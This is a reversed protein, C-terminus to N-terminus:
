GFGDDSVEIGDLGLQTSKSNMWLWRHQNRVWGFGDTSVELMGLGAISVELVDLAM